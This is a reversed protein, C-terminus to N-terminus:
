EMTDIIAQLVKRADEPGYAKRLEAQLRGLMISFAKGREM